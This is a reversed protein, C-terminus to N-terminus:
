ISSFNLIFAIKNKSVYKKLENIAEKKKHYITYHSKGLKESIDKIDYGEIYLRIIEFCSDSLINKAITLLSMVEIEILQSFQYDEIVSIVSAYEDKSVNHKLANKYRNKISQYAYNKIHDVSTFKHNNTYISVFVDQVIDQSDISSNNFLKSAFYDLSSFLREYVRSFDVEKRLNFGHILKEENINPNLPLKVM